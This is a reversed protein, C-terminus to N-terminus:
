ENRGGEGRGDSPDSREAVKPRFLPLFVNEVFARTGEPNDQFHVALRRMGLWVVFGIATLTIIFTFGMGLLACTM